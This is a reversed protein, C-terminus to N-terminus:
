HVHTANVEGFQFKYFPRRLAGHKEIFTFDAGLWALWRIAREHRADVYNELHGFQAIWRDLITRSCKLLEKPVRLMLETGLLWPHYVDGLATPQTVGTLCILRGNGRFAVCEISAAVSNRVGWAPDFGLALIEDRDAPLLERILEEEDAQTIPALSIKM